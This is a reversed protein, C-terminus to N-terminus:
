KTIMKSVATVMMLPTAAYSQNADPKPLKSTMLSGPNLGTVVGIIPDIIASM